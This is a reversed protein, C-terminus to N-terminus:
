LRLKRGARTGTLAVGPGKIAFSELLMQCGRSQGLPKAGAASVKGPKTRPQGCHAPLPVHYPTATSLGGQGGFRSPSHIPETPSACDSM